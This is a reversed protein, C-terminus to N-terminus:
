MWYPLKLWQKTPLECYISGHFTDGSDGVSWQEAYVNSIVKYHEEQDDGEPKDVVSCVDSFSCDIMIKKIDDRLELGLKDALKKIVKESELEIEAYM